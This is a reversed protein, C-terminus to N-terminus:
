AEFGSVIVLLVGSNTIFFLGSSLAFVVMSLELSIDFIPKEVGCGRCTITFHPM